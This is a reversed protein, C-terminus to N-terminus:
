LQIVATLCNNCNAKCEIVMLEYNNGFHYNPTKNVTDFISEIVATCDDGNAM